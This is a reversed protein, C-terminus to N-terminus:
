TVGNVSSSGLDERPKPSGLQLGWSRRAGLEAGERSIGDSNFRSLVSTVPHPPSHDLIPTPIDSATVHVGYSARRLGGERGGEHQVVWGRGRQLCSGGPKEQFCSLSCTSVSSCAASKWPFLFRCAACSPRSGQGWLGPPPLFLNPGGPTSLRDGRLEWLM